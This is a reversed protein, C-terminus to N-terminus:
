FFSLSRIIETEVASIDGDLPANELYRIVTDLILAVHGYDRSVCVVGLVLKQWHDLHEVEAVAVSFKHQLRTTVSRAFRRKTKLSRSDAVVFTIKASGIEM